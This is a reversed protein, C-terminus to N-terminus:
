VVTTTPEGEAVMTATTASRSDEFPVAHGIVPQKDKVSRKNRLLHDGFKKFFVDAKANKDHQPVAGGTYMDFLTKRWEYAVEIDDSSLNIESDVAMSRVNLNASGLTVFADDIVMLKGHVYIDKSAGSKSSSKLMCLHVKIGQAELDKQTLKEPAGRKFIVNNSNAFKGTRTGDPNYFEKNATIFGEGAGLENAAEFARFMMGDNEPKCTVVFVHVTGKFGGDRAKQVAKKLWTCWEPYQFYQNTVLIFRRVNNTAMFYAGKIDKEQKTIRSTGFFGNETDTWTNDPRTRTIQASSKAELPIKPVHNKRQELLPKEGPKDVGWADCFNHNLDILCEGEVKMSLDHWPTPSERESNDYLMAQTDWYSTLSNHGMVFGVPNDTEYDVLVTKQHDTPFSLTASESNTRPDEGIIPHDTIDRTSFFINKHKDIEDYWYASFAKNRAARHKESSVSGFIGNGLGVANNQIKNAPWYFWLKLRVTVGREAAKILYHGYTKDRSWAKGNRVISMGPDFGWCLIEITKTASEIAAAIAAFTQEGSYLPTLLNRDRKPYLSSSLFWPNTLNISLDVSEPPVEITQGSPIITPYELSGM